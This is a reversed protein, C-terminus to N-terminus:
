TRMAPKPRACSKLSSATPLAPAGSYCWCVIIPMKHLRRPQDKSRRRMQAHTEGPFGWVVASQLEPNLIVDDAYMTHVDNNTDTHTGQHRYKRQATAGGKEDM